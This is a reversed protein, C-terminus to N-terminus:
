NFRYRLSARIEHILTHDISYPNPADANAIENIYLARYGLDAVADGFDYGVGAMGAAAFSTNSGWFQYGDSGPEDTAMRNFAVGVGAGVYGFAGGAASLGMDGFGFDYYANALAITSRLGLSYSGEAAGSGDPIDIAMGDSQLYDVTVDFRMGDGTEYGAGIGASYGWGVQQVDYTSPDLSPHNVRYAWAMNGGVSGRLYFSGKLGDDVEPVYPPVYDKYVPEDYVIPDAAIAPVAVLAAGGLMVIAVLNRKM